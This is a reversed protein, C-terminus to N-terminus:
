LTSTVTDASYIAENVVLYQDMFKKKDLARIAQKADRANKMLVYGYGLPRGEEKIATAAAVEGYKM